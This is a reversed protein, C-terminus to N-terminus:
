FNISKRWPHDKGPKHKKTSREWQAELQKHDIIPPQCAVEEHKLYDLLEGKYEIAVDGDLKELVQVFAGRLRRVRNPAQIQFIENKYHVELNKSIKRASKECLVHELDHSLKRHANFPDAATIGFRRNYKDLYSPLFENAEEITCINNERLEKVLRDQLIGNAREIRGKAQPSHATIVEIGLEKMARTFQTPKSRNEGHNVRFSSYKDPYLCIPRGHTELYDKMLRFYGATTEELEFRAATLKSTADDVALLLTCRPGRDELWDHPSGDMQELEGFCSRRKRRPHIKVEKKQKVKWLGNKILLTRVAEKSIKIQHKEGLKEAILTPGYDYYLENILSLIQHHLSADFARNQNKRKKSIFGEAGHLIYLKKLRLVHRYSLALLKSIEMLTIRKEAHEKFLRFRDAEKITM